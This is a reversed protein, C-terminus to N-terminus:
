TSRFGSLRPPVWALTTAARVLDDRTQRTGFLTVMTGEVAVALSYHLEVVDSQEPSIKFGSM